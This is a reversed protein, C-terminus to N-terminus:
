EEVSESEELAEYIYQTLVQRMAESPNPYRKYFAVVPEPLRLNVQQMRRSSLAMTEDLNLDM